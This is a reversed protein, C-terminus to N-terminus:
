QVSSPVSRNLMRQRRGIKSSRPVPTALGFGPKTLNIGLINFKPPACLQSKKGYFRINAAHYKDFIQKLLTKHQEWGDTFLFLDDQYLVMLDSDLQSRLLNSLALQYISSAVKLGLPMRTYRLHYKSSSIATLDRSEEALSLSYFAGKQDLISYLTAKSHGLKHLCDEVRPLAHYVPAVRLNLQRLDTVIRFNNGNGTGSGTQSPAGPPSPERVLFVPSSYPSCSPELIGSHCLKSLQRNLEADM